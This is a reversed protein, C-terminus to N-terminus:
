HLYLRLPFSACNVLHPHSSNQEMFLFPHSISSSDTTDKKFLWATMNRKSLTTYAKSIKYTNALMEATYLHTTWWLSAPVHTPESALNPEMGRGCGTRKPVPYRLNLPYLEEEGAQAEKHWLVQGLARELSWEGAWLDAWASYQPCSGVGGISLGLNRGESCVRWWTDKVGWFGSGERKGEKLGWETSGCIGRM